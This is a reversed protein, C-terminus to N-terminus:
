GMERRKQGLNQKKVPMHASRWDQFGDRYLSIQEFGAEELQQAASEGMSEDEGYLVIKKEHPYKKEATEALHETPINEAGQIHSMKYNGSDRVDILTIHLIEDKLEERNIFKVM